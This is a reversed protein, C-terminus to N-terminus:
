NIFEVHYVETMNPYYLGFNQETGRPKLDENFIAFVYAEISEGPKKPTGKAGSLHAVLNNNYMRANEITAIQGNENSPWGSETVVVKVSAGGAKELATYTADTIADFLNKYELEGDRVVVRSSNFLAYDLPVNVPDNIYSFYPYVNVLFPSGNAALFGTISRMIPDIDMSFEGQSPPYSTGLVATSVSTSVPISYPLQADRLAQDLNQMAPFVYAALNGPIVENGASIYRFRVNQSYPIVNTSVWSRAFSLDAALQPLDQNLTGLVVEIGSGQLAELADLNPDFLRLRNINRSKLLAVVQTSPPLNDGLRGYNVGITGAEADLYIAFEFLMFPIVIEFFFDHRFFLLAFIGAYSDSQLFLLLSVVTIFYCLQATSAFNQPM